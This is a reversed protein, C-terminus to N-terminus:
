RRRQFLTNHFEFAVWVVQVGPEHFHFGRANLEEGPLLQRRRDRQETLAVALIRAGSQSGLANAFQSSM